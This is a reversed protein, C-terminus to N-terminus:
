PALRPQTQGGALGLLMFTTPGSVADPKQGHQLQFAALRAALAADFVAPSPAFGHDPAASSATPGPSSATGDLANAISQVLPGSAGQGVPVSYGVPPRWLMAFEGRWLLGLEAVSVTWISNGTAIRAGDVGLSILRAYRSKGDPGVLTLLGPRNWQRLQELTTDSNRFCRLGQAPLVACPDIAADAWWPNAAAGWQKALDWWLGRDVLPLTTADRLADFVAASAPSAASGARSPLAGSGPGSAALLAGVALRAPTGAPNAAVDTRVVPWFVVSAIAVLAVASTAAALRPWNWRPPADFVESAALRILGPSLEAKGQAYAALLARDCLVNIRRPVGRAIRHIRALARPGIPSAGALGAVTLRHAIYQATEAETLADLHYRAIVRQALQELEPRAVMARLAPQGILVIQLLKRENTELNTLLRLQELVDASLNQAEDIVVVCHEGKAHAALLFRNLPDLYDKISPAAAVSPQVPIGFEDTISQLLELATLKPNFIYAVRCHAPVQELFCRCVTTKGAGIEGTLLVIGGGTELGYVLHAFAERHRESMFLFRPDPAISFPEAKLGFFSLYMPHLM